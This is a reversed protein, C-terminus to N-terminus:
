RGARMESFRSRARVSGSKGMMSGSFESDTAVPFVRGDALPAYSSNLVYREVKAVLMMRFPKASTFRVREVYPRPGSTNVVADAITDASADHSGMKITGKPLGAFRYTVQGSAEAVRRAPAGFWRAVRAYSPTPERTAAKLIDTREKATPARGDVRLVSWPPATGPAHRTVIETAASGTRESRFTQVFAVDRTDTAKMGALVREQLPDAGAPAAAILV